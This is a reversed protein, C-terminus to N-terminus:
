EGAGRDGNGSVWSVFNRLIRRGSPTERFTTMFDHLHEEGDLFHERRILVNGHLEALARLTAPTFEPHFQVGFSRGAQFAQIPTMQNFALRIAGEPLRTVHTRHVLPVADGSAFGRFLPSSEGAPTLYIPVTGMERGRPNWKVEGGLAAALAHHGFCVGLISSGAGHAARLFALLPPIWPKDEFVAGSSGSVIIGRCVGATEAPDPLERAIGDHIVLEISDVLGLMRFAERFWDASTSQDRLTFETVDILYITAKM